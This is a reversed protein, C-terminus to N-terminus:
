KELPFKQFRGRQVSATGNTVIYVRGLEKLRKLFDEAGALPVCEESLAAIYALNLQAAKETSQGIRALFENYRLSFLQQHTIERRELRRWLADNIKLYQLYDGEGYSFGLGQMARRLANQCCAAFDFLTDDADLLFVDYRKM